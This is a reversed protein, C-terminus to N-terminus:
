VAYFISITFKYECTHLLHIRAKKAFGCYHKDGNFNM